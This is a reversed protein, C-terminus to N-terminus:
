DLYVILQIFQIKLSNWTSCQLTKNTKSLKKRTLVLDWNSGLKQDLLFGLINPFHTIALFKM